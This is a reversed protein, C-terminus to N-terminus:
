NGVFVGIEPPFDSIVDERRGVLILNALSDRNLGTQGSIESSRKRPLGTLLHEMISECRSQIKVPRVRACRRSKVNSSLNMTSGQHNSLSDCHRAREGAPSVGAARGIHCDQFLTMIL